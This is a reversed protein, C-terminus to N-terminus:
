RALWRVAHVVSYGALWLWFLVQVLMGLQAGGVTAYLLGFACRALLYIWMPKILSPRGLDIWLGILFWLPAAISEHILLWVPDWRNSRTQGDAEPRLHLSVIAAPLAGSALLVLGPSPRFQRPDWGVEVGEQLFAANTVVTANLYGKQHRLLVTGHSIWTALLLLDLVTHGLPLAWRYRLTPM